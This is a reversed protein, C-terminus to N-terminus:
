EQPTTECAANENACFEEVEQELEAIDAAAKEKFQELEQVEKEFVIEDMKEITQTHETAAEGRFQDTPTTTAKEETAEATPMENTNM